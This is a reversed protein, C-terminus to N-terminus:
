GDSYSAWADDTEFVTVLSPKLGLSKELGKFFFEAIREATPNGGRLQPLNNLTKHDLMAALKEMESRVDHFDVVMGLKDLRGAGFVAEVTWNHGHLEKCAGRHGKLKHAASFKSKVGTEYRGM